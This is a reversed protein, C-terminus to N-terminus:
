PIRSVTAKLRKGDAMRRNPTARYPVQWGMRPFLRIEDVWTTRHRLVNKEMSLGYRGGGLIPIGMNTCQLRIAQIHAMVRTHVTAKIVSLRIIISVPSGMNVGCTRLSSGGAPEEAEVLGGVLGRGLRCIASHDEALGHVQGDAV